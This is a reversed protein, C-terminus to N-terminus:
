VRIISNSMILITRLGVGVSCSVGEAVASLWGKVNESIFKVNPRSNWWRGQSRWGGERHQKEFNLGTDSVRILSM